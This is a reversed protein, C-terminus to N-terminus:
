GFLSLQEAVGSAAFAGREASDTAKGHCSIVTVGRNALANGVLRRHCYREAGCYCALVITSGANILTELERLCRRALPGQLQGIFQESYLPWWTEGPRGKWESLYQHFLAPSPALDVVRRFGVIDHGGRTILWYDDAHSKKANSVSSLIIKGNVYTM